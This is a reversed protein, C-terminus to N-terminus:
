SRRCAEFDDFAETAFNPLSERKEAIEALLRAIEVTRMGEHADLCYQKLVEYKIENCSEEFTQLRNFRELLELAWARESQYRNYITNIM